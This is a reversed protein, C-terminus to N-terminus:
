QNSCSPDTTLRVNDIFGQEQPFGVGCPGSRQMTFVLELPQTALSADLCVTEEAFQTGGEALPGNGPRSELSTEANNGIQYFYKIAPGGTADPMPVVVTARASVFACQEQATFRLSAVGSQAVGQIVEVNGRDGIGSFRWSTPLGSSELEFDGDLVYPDDGCDPESVVEVSDVVFDRVDPSGCMGTTVPLSFAVSRALALTHPPLCVTSTSAGGGGSAVLEATFADAVLIQLRRSPTGGWYFRLAQSDLTTPLPLSATGSFAATSCLTSTQLRAARSGDEGMGDEITADGLGSWASGDGEFDGDLVTGFNPCELDTDELRVIEFRDVTLEGQTISSPCFGSAADIRFEIDGGFGAEGLCSVQTAVENRKPLRSWYGGIGVLPRAEGILRTPIDPDFVDLGEYTVEFAFPEVRSAPAMPFVQSVSSDDCVSDGDWVVVGPDDTGEATPDLVAGGTTTWPEADDFGPALPAGVFVCGSGDAQYGPACVCFRGTDDAECVELAECDEDTDCDCAVTDCIDGDMMNGGDDVGGDDVGSSTSGCAFLFLFSFTFCARTM